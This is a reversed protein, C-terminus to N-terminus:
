CLDQRFTILSSLSFSETGDIMVYFMLLDLALLNDRSMIPRVYDQHKKTTPGLRRGVNRQLITPRGSALLVRIMDDSRSGFLFLLSSLFSFKSLKSDRSM